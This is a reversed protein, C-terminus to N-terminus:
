EQWERIALAWSESLEDFSATASGPLARVVTDFGMPNALLTHSALARMRRKILNRAVANGVKKSVVFGWRSPSEADTRRYVMVFLGHASRRGRRQTSRLDEGSVILHVRPLM